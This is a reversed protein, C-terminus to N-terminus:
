GDDENTPVDVVVGFPPKDAHKNISGWVVPYDPEHKPFTGEMDTLYILVDPQLDNDKIYDFVPWFHTGGGGPIGDYVMKRVDAPDHCIDVRKVETDCWVVHTEEPQVDEIMGGIEGIWRKVLEPDHFVSGSTDGGVVIVGAGHGTVGPAGIGRTILRRDLKRWDYAGSGALRLLLGRIHDTWDVKPRLIDEFFMRLSAPLTGRAIQIDMAQKVVIDWQADDRPPADQPQQGEGAGPPLHADFQQPSGPEGSGFETAGSKRKEDKNKWHRFYVEIWQDQDTAIDTDYLWLPNFEGLGSAILIANIVYDQVENAFDHDYPLTANGLKIEGKAHFAYGLRVHNLMEHMTEHLVVFVRQLLPLQFFPVPNIMIQFGDTAATTKLETTFLAVDDNGTNHLMTYIVHTFGPGVWSLAALTDEWKRRDQPTLKVRTYRAKQM